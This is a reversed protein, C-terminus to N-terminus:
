LFMMFSSIAMICSLIYFTPIFGFSRYLGYGFLPGLIGRVGWFVHHILTYVPADHDTKSFYLCGLMFNIKGGAFLFGLLISAAYVLKMDWAWVYLLPHFLWIGHLLMRQLMPNPHRDLARGWWRLTLVGALHILIGAALAIQRYDANLVDVIYLVYIPTGALNAFGGLFFAIEYGIYLRDSRATEVIDRLPAISEGKENGRLPEPIKTLLLTGFLGALSALIFIGRFYQGNMELLFGAALTAAVTVALSVFRVHGQITGRLSTPYMSKLLAAYMPIYTFIFFLGAAAIWCFWVPDHIWALAIFIVKCPISMCLIYQIKGHIKLLNPIFVSLLPGVFAAMLILALQFESVGVTKRAVFSLM